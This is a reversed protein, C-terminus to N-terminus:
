GIFEVAMRRRGQRADHSPTRLVVDFPPGVPGDGTSGSRVHSRLDRNAESAPMRIPPSAESPRETSRPDWEDRAVPALVVLSPRRGGPRDRRRPREPRPPGAPRNLRVNGPDNGHHFAAEVEMRPQELCAMATMAAQEIAIAGTSPDYRYGGNYSNCGASGTVQAAAFAMTPESGAVPVRGNITVVRWITGNLTGPHAERKPDSASCAALSSGILVILLLFRARTKM